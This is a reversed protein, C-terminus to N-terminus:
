NDWTKATIIHNFNKYFPTTYISSVPYSHQIHPPLFYDPTSYKPFNQIHIPNIHYIYSIPFHGYVPRYSLYPSYTRNPLM